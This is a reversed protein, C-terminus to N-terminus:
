PTPVIGPVKPFPVAEWVYRLGLIYRTFREVGLGFGASPPIGIKALELFWSYRELDEGMQRLREVIKDYRYEREGGDVVEGFGCPLILNFDRNYGPKEPDELYYFGRSTKPYKIIWFPEDGLYESLKTEGEQTLEHGKPTEIGLKRLIDTAEDYTLVKFPKKPVKLSPNFKMVVDRCTELVKEMTYVVLDECLKMVDWMSAYAWEVDVQTFECLHRGTHMNELPEERVNRAVFFIKELSAVAAQKFMIVSSMLEYEYGYLKTKLKRAGRLGPDSCPSIIPPLLEVFGSKILFDRVYYLVWQQIKLVNAYKPSRIIFYSYRAFKRVDSPDVEKLDVPLEPPAKVITRLECVKLVDGEVFGKVYVLSERTLNRVVEVQPVIFSAVGTSDRLELICRDGVFKLDHVWALLEVEGGHRVVDRVYM